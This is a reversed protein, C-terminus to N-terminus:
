GRGAPVPQLRPLPGRPARDHGRVRVSASPRVTLYSATPVLGYVRQGEALAPSRSALGRAYGWAPLLGWREPAPFIRWYGLEDGFAAYTVNSATLAFREVRLQAEGEELDTRLPEGDVMARVSPDDRRVLLEAVGPM